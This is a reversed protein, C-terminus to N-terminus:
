LGDTPGNPPVRHFTVWPHAAPKTTAFRPQPRPAGGGQPPLVPRVRSDRGGPMTSIIGLASVRRLIWTSCPTVPEKLSRGSASQSCFCLGSSSSYSFTLLLGAPARSRTDGEGPVLCMAKWRPPWWLGGRPWWFGGPPCRAKRWGGGLGHLVEDVGAGAAAHGGVHQPDAVPVVVVDHELGGAVHEVDIEAPEQAVRLHEAVDLPTPLAGGRAPIACTPGRHKPQPTRGHKPPAAGRRTSVKQGKKGQRLSRAGNTKVESM